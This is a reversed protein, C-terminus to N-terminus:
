PDLLFQATAKTLIQYSGAVTFFLYLTYNGLQPEETLPLHLVSSFHFRQNIHISDESRFRGAPKILGQASVTGTVDGNPQQVALYANILVPRQAGALQYIMRLSEGPHYSARDLTLILEPTNTSAVVPSQLYGLLVAPTWTRVTVPIAVPESGGSPFGGFHASPMELELLYEGPESPVPLFPM